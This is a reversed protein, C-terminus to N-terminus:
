NNKPFKFTVVGGGDPHNSLYFECNHHQMITRAFHLNLGTHQDQHEMGTNFKLLSKELIASPFGEGHDRVTCIARGGERDISIEVPQDDPSYVLANDTVIELAKRLYNVDAEITIEPDTKQLVLRSKARPNKETFEQMFSEIFSPLSFEIKSFVSAGNVNLNSIELAQLSFRELRKTSQDLMALYELVEQPLESMKMLEVGGLIGNLPTRIEHSVMHLFETKAFDLKELDKVAIALKANSAELEKTRAKVKEELQQNWENLAEKSKKLAVHTAVRALLEEPRFPKTLYDVGGADFAKNLSETDTKATLFIIPVDKYAEVEKIRQSTEYGDLGPMMIDMLILDFSALSVWQLAEEGSLAFEVNYQEGSLLSAAIEVNSPNDDVILITAGDKNENKM